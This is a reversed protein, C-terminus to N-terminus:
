WNIEEANFDIEFPTDMFSLPDSAVIGTTPLGTVSNESQSEIGTNFLSDKSKPRKKLKRKIKASEQESLLVYTNKENGQSEIGSSDENEALNNNMEGTKENFYNQSAIDGKEVLQKTLAYEESSESKSNIEDSKKGPLVQIRYKILWYWRNKIANKSRSPFSSSMKTWHTGYKNVLSVLLEDETNTWPEFTLSPKLYNMWRDRCQRPSRGPVCQSIQNWSVEHFAIAAQTLLCDEYYTFLRRKGLNNCVDSNCETKSKPVGLNGYPYPYEMLPAHQKTVESKAGIGTTFISTQRCSIPNSPFQQVSNPASPIM